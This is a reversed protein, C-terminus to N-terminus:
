NTKVEIGDPWGWYFKKAKPDWFWLGGSLNTNVKWHYVYEREKKRDCFTQDTGPKMRLKAVTTFKEADRTIQLYISGSHKTPLCVSLDIYDGILTPYYGAGANATPTGSVGIVFSFAFLAVARLKM